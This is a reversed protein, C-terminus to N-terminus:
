NVEVEKANKEGAKVNSDLNKFSEKLNKEFNIAKRDGTVRAYEETYIPVSKELYPKILASDVCTLVFLDGNKALYISKRRSGSLPLNEVVTETTQVLKQSYSEDLKTKFQNSEKNNKLDGDKVLTGAQSREITEKTSKNVYSRIINALNGRADNESEAMQVKLGGSSQASMGSSCIEGEKAKSNPELVWNPVDDISGKKSCSVSFFSSSLLLLCGLKSFNNM